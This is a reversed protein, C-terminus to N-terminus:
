RPTTTDGKLTDSPTPTISDNLQQFEENAKNLVDSTDQTTTEETTSEGQSKCSSFSVALALAAFCFVKKMRKLESARFDPV